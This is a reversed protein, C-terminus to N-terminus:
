SEEMKAEAAHKILPDYKRQIARIAKIFLFIVLGTGFILVMASAAGSGACALSCSLAMVGLILGVVLLCTIVVLIAKTGRPGHKYVAKLYNYLARLKKLKQKRIQKKEKITKTTPDGSVTSAISITAVSTERNGSGTCVIMLLSCVILLLECSKRLYYNAYQKSAKSPYIVVGGLYFLISLPLLYAPLIIQTESFIDSVMLAMCTLLLYCITLIFRAPWLNRSAWLSVSRM